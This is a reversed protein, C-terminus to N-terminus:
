YKQKLLGRLCYWRKVRHIPQMSSCKIPDTLRVLHLPYQQVIKLCVLLITFFSPLKQVLFMCWFDWEYDYKNRLVQAIKVALDMWLEDSFLSIKWNCCKKAIKFYRTTVTNTELSTIKQINPHNNNTLGQWMLVIIPSDKLVLLIHHLCWGEM